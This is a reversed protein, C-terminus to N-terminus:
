MFETELAGLIVLMTLPSTSQTFTTITGMCCTSWKCDCNRRQISNGTCYIFCRNGIINPQKFKAKWTKFLKIIRSTWFHGIIVNTLIVHRSGIPFINPVGWLRVQVNELLILPTQLEIHRKAHCCFVSATPGEEFLRKGARSQDTCPLGATEFDTRTEFLPCLKRHSFCWQHSM